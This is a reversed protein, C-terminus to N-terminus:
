VPQFPGCDADSGWIRSSGMMVRVPVDDFSFASAILVSYRLPQEPDFLGM